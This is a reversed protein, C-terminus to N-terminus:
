GDQASLREKGGLYREYRRLKCQTFGNPVMMEHAMEPHQKLYKAVPPQSTLVNSQM